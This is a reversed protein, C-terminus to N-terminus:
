EPQETRLQGLELWSAAGSSHPVAELADCCRKLMVVSLHDKTSRGRDPCFSTGLRTALTPRPANWHMGLGEGPTEEGDRKCGKAEEDDEGGWHACRHPNSNKVIKVPTSKHPFHVYDAVRANQMKQAM